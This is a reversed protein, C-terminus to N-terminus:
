DVDPRYKLPELAVVFALIMGAVVELLEEFIHFALGAFDLWISLTQLNVVMMFTVLYLARRARGSLWPAAYLAAWVFLISFILKSLYM